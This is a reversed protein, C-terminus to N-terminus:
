SQLLFVLILIIANLHLFSSLLKIHKYYYIYIYYIQLTMLYFVIILQNSLIMQKHYFSIFQNVIVFTNVSTITHEHGDGHIEEKEKYQNNNNININANLLLVTNVSHAPPPADAVHGQLVVVPYSIDPRQQHDDVARANLDLTNIDICGGKVSLWFTTNNTNFVKLESDKENDRHSDTILTLIHKPHDMEDSKTKIICNYIQM